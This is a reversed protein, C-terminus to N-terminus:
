AKITELGHGQPGTEYRWLMGYDEPLVNKCGLGKTSAAANQPVWAQVIDGTKKFVISAEDYELKDRTALAGAVLLVAIIAVIIKTRSTM